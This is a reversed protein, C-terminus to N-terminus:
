STKHIKGGICVKSIIETEDAYTKDIVKGGKKQKLQKENDQRM